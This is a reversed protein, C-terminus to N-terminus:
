GKLGQKHARGPGKKRTHPNKRTWASTGKFSEYECGLLARIQQAVNFNKM